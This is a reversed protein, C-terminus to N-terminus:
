NLDRWLASASKAPRGAAQSCAPASDQYGRRPWSRDRTQGPCSLRDRGQPRSLSSRPPHRLSTVIAAALSTVLRSHLSTCALQCVNYPARCHRRQRAKSHSPCKKQPKVVNRSLTFHFQLLFHIRAPHFFSNSHSNSRLSSSLLFFTTFIRRINDRKVVQYFSHVVPHFFSLYFQLLFRFQLQGFSNKRFSIVVRSSRTVSFHLLVGPKGTEGPKGPKCFFFCGHGRLPANFSADM